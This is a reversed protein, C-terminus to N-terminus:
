GDAPVESDVGRGSAAGADGGDDWGRRLWVARVLGAADIGSPRLIIVWGGVPSLRFVAYSITLDTSTFPAGGAGAHVVVAELQVCQALWQRQRRCCRRPLGGLRDGARGDGRGARDAKEAASALSM